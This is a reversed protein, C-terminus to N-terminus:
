VLMLLLLIGVTLVVALLTFAAVLLLNQREGKRPRPKSTSSRNARARRSSQGSLSPANLPPAVKRNSWNEPHQKKGSSKFEYVPKWDDMGEHWYLAGEDFWSTRVGKMVEQDTAPGYIEGNWSLFIRARTGRDAQVNEAVIFPSSGSQVPDRANSREPSAEERM